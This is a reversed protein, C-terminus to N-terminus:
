HTFFIRFKNMLVVYIKRQSKKFNIKVDKIISIPLCVPITRGEEGM